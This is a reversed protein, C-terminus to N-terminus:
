IAFTQLDLTIQPYEHAQQPAEDDSTGLLFPGEPVELFHAPGVPPLRPDGLEGLREAMALRVEFPDVGLALRHALAAATADSWAHPLVVGSATPVGAVNPRM